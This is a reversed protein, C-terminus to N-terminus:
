HLAHTLGVADRGVPLVQGDDQEPAEAEKDEVHALPPDLELVGEEGDPYRLQPGVEGEAEDDHSPDRRAQVKHEQAVEDPLHEVVDRVPRGGELAHRM